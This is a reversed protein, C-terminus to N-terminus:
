FLGAGPRNYKGLDDGQKPRKGNDTEKPEFIGKWDNRVSHCIAAVARAPGWEALQALTKKIAVESAPKKIAKRFELWEGWATRFEPTDLGAPLDQTPLDQSQTPKAQSPKPLRKKLRGKFPKKFTRGTNKLRARVWNECHEAWDHILVRSEKDVDLWGSEILASTLASVDGSFDCAHAIAADTWKGIDGEPAQDSAFDFLLTLYGIATPRSCNLRDMLDYLKPHRLASKKM